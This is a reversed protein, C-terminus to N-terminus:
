PIDYNDVIWDMKAGFSHLRSIRAFYFKTNSHKEATCHNLISKNDLVLNVLFYQIAMDDRKSAM